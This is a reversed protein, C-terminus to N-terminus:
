LTAPSIRGGSAAGQGEGWCVDRKGCETALFYFDCLVLHGTEDIQAFFYWRGSGARERGSMEACLLVGSVLWELTGADGATEVHADDVGVDVVVLGGWGLVMWVATRMSVSVARPASTDQDEQTRGGGEKMDLRVWGGGASCRKLELGRRQLALREEMGVGEEEEEGEWVSDGCCADGDERPLALCLFLVVPADFLGEGAEGVGLGEVHDEVVAAVECVDDVFLERVVEFTSEGGGDM